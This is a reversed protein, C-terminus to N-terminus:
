VNYCLRKWLDVDSQYISKVKNIQEKTLTPKPYVSQNIPEGTVTGGLAKVCDSVDMWCLVNPTIYDTQPRTHWEFGTSVGNIFEDFTGKHRTMEAGGQSHRYVSIVREVPDRVLTHWEYHKLNEPINTHHPRISEFGELLRCQSEIFRGATRPIHIFGKRKTHIVFM